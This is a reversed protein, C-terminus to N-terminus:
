KYYYCLVIHHHFFQSFKQSFTKFSKKSQHGGPGAQGAAPGKIVSPGTLAEKKAVLFPLLFTGSNRPLLSRQPVAASTTRRWARVIPLLPSRKPERQAELLVCLPLIGNFRAFRRLAARLPLWEALHRFVSFRLWSFVDLIKCFWEWGAVIFYVFFPLHGVFISWTVPM